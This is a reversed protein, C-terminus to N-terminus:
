IVQNVNCITFRSAGQLRSKIEEANRIYLTNGSLLNKGDLAVLRREFPLYSFTEFGYGLMTRHLLNEDFGYREGSGNLEMVVALLSKSSLVRDAGAIVNTEFGEVDIKIVKPEFNTLVDDLSKIKVKISEIGEESKGLVHNVAGLGSTFHLFGSEKGIGINLAVVRDGICNLNINDMLHSYTGPIPEISISRAGVVGSALISYSGINAGVDVFGDTERLAHLVFAMDEFEHLGCYVNLTAGPMGRSVLLRTRDVFQMAVPGQVLRSGIQWRAFRFISAYKRTDNLPHNAIFALTNLLGM